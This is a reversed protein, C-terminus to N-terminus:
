SNEATIKKNSIKENVFLALAIVGGGIFLKILDTQEGFFILSVAIALPIKLNNFVALAGTNTRRAGYNWLFFALGSAVAGLYLLTFIQEMSINLQSYNTTFLSAILTVFAAGAYMVAFVDKDKIERSQELIRKYFIQGAAFSLNSIQVFLFGMLLNENALGSFKIIGAGAFALTASILFMKHFKKTLIDNILSVYLPTFITFLAVEYADLYRFSYIYAIYMIGFQVMGTIFLKLIIQKPLTRIKVFPIFMILSIFMRVFSVFNSDLNSLNTKILGFSFAWLLSVLFLYIM